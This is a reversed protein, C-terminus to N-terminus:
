RSIDTDKATVRVVVSSIVTFDTTDHSVQTSNLSKVLWTGNETKVCGQIAHSRNQSVM